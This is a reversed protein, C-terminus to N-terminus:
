ATDFEGPMWDDDSPSPSPELVVVNESAEDLDIQVEPTEPDM